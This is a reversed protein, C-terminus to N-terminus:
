NRFSLSLDASFNVNGLDALYPELFLVQMDRLFTSDRQKALNVLLDVENESPKNLSEPLAAPQKSGWAALIQDNKERAHTLLAEVLGFREANTDDGQLATM